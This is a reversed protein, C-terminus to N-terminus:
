TSKFRIIGLNKKFLRYYRKHLAICHNYILGIANIARYLKKNRKSKYLEFGIRNEIYDGSENKSKCKMIANYM